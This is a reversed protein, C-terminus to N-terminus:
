VRLEDSDRALPVSDSTSSLLPRTSRTFCCLCGHFVFFVVIFLCLVGGLATTTWEFGMRQVVSGGVTPGIFGGFSFASQFVGSVCGYTQFSDDFGHLKVVDLCGQFTPIYLAGAALGLITLAVGIVVLDKDFPMFPAPGIIFMALITFIAGFLMLADTCHFRDILFGWFPASLTYVGGCLLFMLGVLTPTLNFTRLHAELTPDLFSLSISCVIIAFVMLWIHPIRLMDLMGKANEDVPDDDHSDILLCSLVTAGILITGLVLFPTQFGGMEYLFGGILPGATFGLGAFTEMIGVIVSIRGPFCRASIAFSSTVFAADGIAELCRVLLSFWFFLPGEPLYNLFGFLIATVGTLGLGFTFMNKSGIRIMNKGFLPAVIFMVLEFIGFVIGTQSESMGKLKAEAPYFPAICSFAVTSCLNALALMMVVTWEKGTLSSFSAKRMSVQSSSEEEEDEDSEGESSSEDDPASKRQLSEDVRRVTSGYGTSTTPARQGYSVVSRRDPDIAVQTAIPIFPTAIFPRRKKQAISLAPDSLVRRRLRSKKKKRRRQGGESRTSLHVGNPYSPNDYGPNIPLRDIEEGVVTPLSSAYLLPTNEDYDSNVTTQRVRNPWNSVTAPVVPPPADMPGGSGGRSRKQLVNKILSPQVPKSKSLSRKVPSRLPNVEDAEEKRILSQDSESESARSDPRAVTAEPMDRPVTSLAESLDEGLVGTSPPPFATPHSPTGFVPTPPPTRAEPVNLPTSLTSPIVTDDDDPFNLTPYVLPQQGQEPSPGDHLDAMEQS